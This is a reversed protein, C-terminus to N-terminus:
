VLRPPSIGSYLLHCGESLHLPPTLIHFIPSLIFLCLSLMFSVMPQKLLKMTIRLINNKLILRNKKILFQIASGDAKAEKAPFLKNFVARVLLLHFAGAVPLSSRQQSLSIIGTSRIDCSLPSITYITIFFLIIATLRVNRKM